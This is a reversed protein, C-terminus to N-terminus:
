LHNANKRSKYLSIGWVIIFPILFFFASMDYMIFIVVFILPFWFLLNKFYSKHTLFLLSVVCLHATILFSWNIFEFPRFTGAVMRSYPGTFESGYLTFWGLNTPIGVIISLILMIIILTKM